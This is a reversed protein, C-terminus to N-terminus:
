VIEQDRFIGVRFSSNSFYEVKLEIHFINEAPQMSLYNQLRDKSFYM